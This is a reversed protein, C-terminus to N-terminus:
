DSFLEWDPGPPLRDLLSAAGFSPGAVDDTGVSSAELHAALADWGGPPAAAPDLLDVLPRPDFRRYACTQFLAGHRSRWQSVGVVKRGEAEVEGPGMGAFCAVPSWRDRVSPGHHVSVGRAGAAELASFWWEGVWGAAALVDDDWLPDGRPLWVDVWLPDRPGVRVAGGGSRRRVIAVGAAEARARDVVSPPQTSGLVLADTGPTRVVVRRRASRRHREVDFWDSPSREILLSSGPVAGM